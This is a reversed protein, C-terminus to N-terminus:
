GRGVVLQPASMVTLVALVILFAGLQRRDDTVSTDSLVWLGHIIMMGCFMTGIMLTAVAVSATLLICIVFIASLLSITACATAVVPRHDRNLEVVAFAMSMGAAVQVCGTGASPQTEAIIGHYDCALIALMLVFTISCLVTAVRLLLTTMKRTEEKVSDQQQQQKTPPPQQQQQQQKSASSTISPIYIRRQPVVYPETTGFKARMQKKFRSTGIVVSYPDHAALVTPVVNLVVLTMLGARHLLEMEFILTMDVMLLDCFVWLVSSKMRLLPRMQYCLVASAFFAAVSAIAVLSVIKYTSVSPTLCLACSTTLLLPCALRGVANLKKMYGYGTVAAGCLASLAFAIWAARGWSGKPVGHLHFLVKYFILMSYNIWLIWAVFAYALSMMNLFAKRRRGGPKKSNDEEEEDFDCALTLETM